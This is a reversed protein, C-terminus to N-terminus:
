ILIGTDGLLYRITAYIPSNHLASIWDCKSYLHEEHNERKVFFKFSVSWFAWFLHLQKQSFKDGLDWISGDSKQFIFQGGTLSLTTKLYQFPVTGPYTWSINLDEGQLYLVPGCIANSIGRCFVFVTCFIKDKKPGFFHDLISWPILFTLVHRRKHTSNLIFYKVEDSFSTWIIEVNKHDINDNSDRLANNNKRAM